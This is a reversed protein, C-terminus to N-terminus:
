FGYVIAMGYDLDSKQDGAEPTSDYRHLAFMRFNLNLAEDIVFEFGGNTVTRYDAFDEVNPFYDFTVFLKSRESLKREWDGGFQLEPVWDDNVGGFQRSAGGGARLKLFGLDNEYVKYGIGTHLALLFDFAKFQDNEFYGQGYWSLRPNDLFDLEHRAQAFYRNTTTAIDNSAYFYSALLKTTHRDLSRTMNLNMNIDLNESNGTKGNLGAAFSGEWLKEAVVDEIIGGDLDYAVDQGFASVSYTALVVIFTCLSLCAKIKM